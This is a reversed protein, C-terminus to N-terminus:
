VRRHPAQSRRSEGLLIESRPRRPPQVSPHACRCDRAPRQRRQSPYPPTPHGQAESRLPHYFPNDNPITRHATPDSDEAETGNCNAFVINPLHFPPPPYLLVLRTSSITAQNYLAMLSHGGQHNLLGRVVIPCTGPSNCLRRLTGSKSHLQMTINTHPWSVRGSISLCRSKQPHVPVKSPAVSGWTKRPATCIRLQSAPDPDEFWAWLCIGDTPQTPVCRLPRESASAVICGGRGM